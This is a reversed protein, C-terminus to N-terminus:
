RASVYRKGPLPRILGKFELGLLLAAMESQSIGCEFTLADISLEAREALLNVIIQEQDDLEVFLEQQVGGGGTEEWRMIYALDAVGELLHAQNSKILHNCGQSMRDNIKGPVAFVDKNYGNGMKATIISGGSAASEVVIVADSLGAIIRNRMPFHERDPKTGSPYESLLGGQRLMRAAIHRHQGPYVMDLGHGLAAITPLGAELCKRHATIDIGFALGSIVTANYSKLGEVIEECAAIGYHSPTRTGVIAVTRYANLDAAGKYYLMVPSDRYPKLRAPYEKDLYFYPRIDNKQMFELEREAMALVDQELVHKAVVDGIGPIKCLERKRARFVAEVGGCYSILTRATVAGVMPIQTIAIKYLLDEGGAPVTESLAKEEREGDWQANQAVVM